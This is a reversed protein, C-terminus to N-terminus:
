HVMPRADQLEALQLMRTVTRLNAPRDLNATRDLADLVGMTVADSLLRRSQERLVFARLDEQTLDRLVMVRCRSRFPMSLRAADNATMIWSVWSMDFPLRFYPCQWRRATLPELLPLLSGTLSYSGGKTSEVPGVKEIEDIVIVPNGIGTQFIMNLPQGPEANTWGRQMGTIGFGAAEPGADIALGPVGVLKAVDRSWASKGIGPPGDLILPPLRFGPEGQHVSHRMAQWLLDTAPALWPYEAHIEAAIEDARHESAIPVLDVGNRVVELKARDKEPLHAIPSRARYLEILRDARRNIRRTVGPPVVIERLHRNLEEIGILGDDDPTPERGPRSKVTRIRKWHATLRKTLDLRTYNPDPFDVGVFPIRTM